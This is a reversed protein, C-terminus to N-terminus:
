PKGPPKQKKLWDNYEKLKKEKTNKYIGVFATWPLIFSGRDDLIVFYDIDDKNNELWICIRKKGKREQDWVKLKWEDCKEIIPRAWGMRECRRLDPSRNNEDNGEHTMHYFTYAKEQYIPHYKLGLRRGRFSPKSKIFDKEFIAYVADIFISYNGDYDNLTIIPPLQDEIDM